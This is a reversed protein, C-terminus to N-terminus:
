QTEQNQAELLKEVMEQLERIAELQKAQDQALQEIRQQLTGFKRKQVVQDLVALSKQYSEKEDFEAALTFTHTHTYNKVNCVRVLTM